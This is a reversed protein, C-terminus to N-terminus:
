NYFSLFWIPLFLIFLLHTLLVIGAMPHSCNFSNSAGKELSSKKSLMETASQIGRDLRSLLILILPPTSHLHHIFFELNDALIQDIVAPLLTDDVSPRCADSQTSTSASYVFAARGRFLPDRSVWTWWLHHHLFTLFHLVNQKYHVGM